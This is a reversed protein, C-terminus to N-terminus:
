IARALHWRVLSLYALDGFDSSTCLRITGSSSFTLGIVALGEMSAALPFRGAFTPAKQRIRIMFEANDTPNRFRPHILILTKSLLDSGALHDLEWWVGGAESDDVCLVITQADRCVKSVAEQWTEHAFYGRAAGYPPYADGPNGLAVVPGVAFGENLVLHDLGDSRKGPQLLLDSRPRWSKPLTVHDDLFSRLFVVPARLDSQLADQMTLRVTSRAWGEIWTALRGAVFLIVPGVVLLPLINVVDKSVRALRDDITEQTLGEIFVLSSFYTPFLTLNFFILIAFGTLITRLVFLTTARRRKRSLLGVHQPVGFIYRFSSRRTSLPETAALTSLRDRASRWAVWSGTLMAIWVLILFVFGFLYLSVVIAADSSASAYRLLLLSKWTSEFVSLAIVAALAVFLFLLVAARAKQIATLWFYLIVLVGGSGFFPLILMQQVVVQKEPDRIMSTIDFITTETTALILLPIFLAGLFTVSLLGAFARLIRALADIYAVRTAHVDVDTSFTSDEGM